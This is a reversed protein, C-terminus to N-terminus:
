ADASGQQGPDETADIDTFDVDQANGGAWVLVLEGLPEDQAVDLVRRRYLELVALFRSVIVPTTAADEVLEHFTMKGLRALREVVIRAQERVPVVPDHLHATVVQPEASSFAAAAARVLDLPSATWVLEPLLAAFQPELPTTRPIFGANEELSAAIQASAGKFARYQLLRTFLLDRAELDEVALERDIQTSPLLSQAKLDLLTAAVVLFETTKSLDPFMRMHAIFEDTVEALAVETIDLRKRTILQLLLDFPGEFVDLAVHFDDIAGQRAEAEPPTVM